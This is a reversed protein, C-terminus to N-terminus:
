KRAAARPLVVGGERLIQQLQKNTVHGKIQKKTLWKSVKGTPKSAYYAGLEALPGADRKREYIQAKVGMQKRLKELNAKSIKPSKGLTKSLVGIMSLNGATGALAAIRGVQASNRGGGFSAAAGASAVAGSLYTAGAQLLQNRATKLEKVSLKGSAKLEKMASYSAIAEDALTPVQGLGTVLAGLGPHGQSSLVIGAALGGLSGVPRAWGRIKPFRTGEYDKAHGLEHAGIGARYAAVKELEEFFAQTIEGKV